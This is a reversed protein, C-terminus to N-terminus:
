HPHAGEPWDVAGTDTKFEALNRPWGKNPDAPDKGREHGAKIWEILKKGLTRDGTATTHITRHDAM